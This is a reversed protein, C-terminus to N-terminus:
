FRYGISLGAASATNDRFTAAVPFGPLRTDADGLWIQQVGATVEVPGQSYTVGLGLSASGDTPGLHSAIEGSAAEYGITVAGAFRESFQRGLGLSYSITDDQYSVLAEQTLTQFLPPAIEFASWNVWRVSGFLLTGAAVGTQFELNVSQPTETQTASDLAAVAAPVQESSALEHAIRSNYTLAVRLAIDQREYAVGLLYGFGDDERLEGQYGDVYLVDAQARLTQYRLGALLSVDSALTYKGLATLSRSELTASSGAAFYGTGAPYAISAGFPQDYILGLSLADTIDTKYSLGFRTLDQAMNGSSAGGLNAVSTGSVSPSVAGVSFALQQGDKFIFATSQGSLDVGGAQAVPAVVLAALTILAIRKM